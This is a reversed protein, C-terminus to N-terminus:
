PMNGFNCDNIKAIEEPLWEAKSVIQRTYKSDYEDLSICDRISQDDFYHSGNIIRAYVGEPVVGIMDGETYRAAIADADVIKFPVNAEALALSYKVIEYSSACDSGSLEFFWGYKDKVPILHISFEIHGSTRIEWPHHGSMQYYEGKQMMWEDFLEANDMPLGCLNDDRGDAYMYYKEKPTRGCYRIREGEVDEFRVFRKQEYSVTDYCLACTEYFIRATMKSLRKNAPMDNSCLAVFKDIEEDTLNKRFSSRQEPFINWFDKRKIKGHRYKYPLNNLVDDKYTNGRIDEIREKVSNIIWTTFETANIPYGNVNADGISLVYKRGLFVGYFDDREHHDICSLKYWVYDDTYEEAYWKKLTEEPICDEDDESKNWEKYEEFSPTRIKLWLEKLNDGGMPTIEKLLDFLERIQMTTAEDVAAVTHRDNCVYVWKNVQLSNTIM